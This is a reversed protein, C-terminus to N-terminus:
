FVENFEITRATYTPRDLVKIECQVVYDIEGDGQMYFGEITVSTIRVCRPSNAAWRTSNVAGILRNEIIGFVQEPRRTDTTGHLKCWQGPAVWRWGRAWLCLSRCLVRAGRVLRM